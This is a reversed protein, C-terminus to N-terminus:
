LIRKTEFFRRIYSLQTWSVALLVVGEIFTYWVLRSTTKGVSGRHIEELGRMYSEHDNFANLTQVLADAEETLFKAMEKEEKSATKLDEMDFGEGLRLGFGITKFGVDAAYWTGMDDISSEREMAMMSTYGGAGKDDDLQDNQSSSAENKKKRMEDLGVLSDRPEIPVDKIRDEAEEAKNM